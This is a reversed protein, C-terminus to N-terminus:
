VDVKEISKISHQKMPGVSDEGTKKKKKMHTHNCRLNKKKQSTNSM